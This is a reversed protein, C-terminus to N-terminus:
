ADDGEEETADEADEETDVDEEMVNHNDSITDLIITENEDATVTDLVLNDEEEQEDISTIAAIKDGEDVRILKV